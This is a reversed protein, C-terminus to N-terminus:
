PNVPEGRSGASSVEPASLGGREAKPNRGVRRLAGATDAMAPAFQPASTFRPVRPVRSVTPTDRLVLAAAAPTNHLLERGDPRRLQLQPRNEQVAGM